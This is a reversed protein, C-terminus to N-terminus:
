FLFGGVLPEGTHYFERSNRAIIFIIMTKRSGRHIEDDVRDQSAHKQKRDAFIEFSESQVLHDPM